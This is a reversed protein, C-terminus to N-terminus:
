KDKNRNVIPFKRKTKTSTRLDKVERKPEFSEIEISPKKPKPHPRTPTTKIPKERQENVKKIFSKIEMRRNQLRKSSAHIILGEEIIQLALNTDLDILAMYSKQLIEDVDKKRSIKKKGDKKLKELSENSIELTDILKILGAALTLNKKSLSEELVSTCLSELKEDQLKRIADKAKDVALRNDKCLSIAQIALELMVNYDKAIELRNIGKIKENYERLNEISELSLYSDVVPSLHDCVTCVPTVDQNVTECIPCQWSM